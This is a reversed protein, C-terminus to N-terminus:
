ISPWQPLLPPLPPPPRRALGLPPPPPSPPPPPPNKPPPPPCRPLTPHCPKKHAVLSLPFFILEMSRNSTFHIVYLCSYIVCWWPAGFTILSIKHEKVFSEFNQMNIEKAGKGEPAPLANEDGAQAGTIEELAYGQSGLGAHVLDKAGGGGWKYFHVQSSSANLISTGLADYLSLSLLNCSLRPFTINFRVPLLEGASHVPALSVSETPRVALFSITESSFLFVMLVLGILSVLAGLSSADTFEKSVRKYQYFDLLRSLSSSPGWFM